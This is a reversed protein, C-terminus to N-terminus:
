HDFCQRPVERVLTQNKIKKRRIEKDKSTAAIPNAGTDALRSKVEDQAISKSSKFVLRWLPTLHLM